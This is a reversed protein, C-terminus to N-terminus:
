FGIKEGVIIVTFDNSARPKADIVTTVRCIRSPSSCDSCFGTEACPTQFKLRHAIKPAVWNKIREMAAELNSVIKNIGAVVIIKGPGFIMSAVRNGSNDINVLKGDLTIANSSSIFVDASLQAKRVALLREQSLGEEWIDYIKCGKERLQEVLGMERVTVSGGIGVSSGAPVRNLIEAAAQQGTSCYLAEFQNKRLANVVQLGRKENFDGTSL